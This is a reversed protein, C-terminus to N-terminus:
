CHAEAYLQCGDQCETGQNVDQHHSPQHLLCGHRRHHQEAQQHPAPLRHPGSRGGGEGRQAAPLEAQACERAGVCLWRITNEKTSIDFGPSTNWGILFGDRSRFSVNLSGEEDFLGSIHFFAIETQCAPLFLKALSRQYLQFQRCWSTSGFSSGTRWWTNCIIWTYYLTPESPQRALTYSLM